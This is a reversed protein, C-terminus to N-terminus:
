AGQGFGKQEEAGRNGREQREKSDDPNRSSKRTAETQEPTGGEENNAVDTHPFQDKSNASPSQNSM